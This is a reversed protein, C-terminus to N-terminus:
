LLELLAGKIKELTGVYNERIDRKIADVGVQPIEKALKFFKQTELAARQSPSLDDEVLAFPDFSNNASLVQVVVLTFLDFTMRRLDEKDWADAQLLPKLNVIATRLNEIIGKARRQFEDERGLARCCLMGVILYDSLVHLLRARVNLTLDHTASKKLSPRNQSAELAKEFFRALEDFTTIAGAYDGDLIAQTAQIETKRPDRNANSFRLLAKLMLREGRNSKQAKEWCEAARILLQGSTTSYEPGIERFWEAAHEYNGAAHAYDGSQFYIQALITYLKGTEEPLDLKEFKQIINELRRIASVISVGKRLLMAIRGFIEPLHIYSGTDLHIQAAREYNQLAERLRGNEVQETALELLEEPNEFDDPDIM